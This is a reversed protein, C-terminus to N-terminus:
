VDALIVEVVYAWLKHSHDDIFTVFYPGGSHSRTDVFCVDTHLLELFGKWKMPPRSLFSIRNQKGVLCDACKELHVNKVKPILDDADLKWMGKESIHCLRKHWLEGVTDAAM